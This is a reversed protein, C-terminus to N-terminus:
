QRVTSRCGFYNSFNNELQKRQSYPSKVHYGWDNDFPIPTPPAYNLEGHSKSAFDSCIDLVNRPDNFNISAVVEGKKAEKPLGNDQCVICVLDPHPAIRLFKECLTQKSFILKATANTVM